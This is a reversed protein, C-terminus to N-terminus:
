FSIMLVLMALGFFMSYFTNSLASSASEYMVNVQFQTAKASNLNSLLFTSFHSEQQTGLLQYKKATVVAETTCFRQPPCDYRIANLPAPFNIEIQLSRDGRSPTAVTFECAEYAPLSVVQTTGKQSIQYAFCNLYFAGKDNKLIQSQGSSFLVALSALYLVAKM